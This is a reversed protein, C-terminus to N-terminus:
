ARWASTAWVRCRANRVIETAGVEVEWLGKRPQKQAWQTVKDFLHYWHGTNRADMEWNWYYDYEPHQYAFYQMPM